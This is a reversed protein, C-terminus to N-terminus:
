GARLCDTHATVTWLETTAHEGSATARLTLHIGTKKNVLPTDYSTYEDDQRTADPDVDYGREDHLKSSGFVTTFDLYNGGSSIRFSQHGAFSYSAKGHGCSVAKTGDQTVTFVGLPKFGARVKAAVWRADTSMKAASDKAKPGSPSSSCGSVALTLVVAGVACTLTWEGHRSTRVSRARM